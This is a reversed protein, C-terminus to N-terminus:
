MVNRCFPDHAIILLPPSYEYSLLTGTYLCCLVAHNDNYVVTSHMLQLASLPLITPALWCDVQDSAIISLLYLCLVACCLMRSPDLYQVTHLSLSLSLENTDFVLLPPPQSTSGYVSVTSDRDKNDCYNITVTCYLVICHQVRHRVQDNHDYMHINDHGIM